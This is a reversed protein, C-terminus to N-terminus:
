CCIVSILKRNLNFCKENIFTRVVRTLERAAFMKSVRFALSSIEAIKTLLLLLLRNKTKLNMIQIAIGDSKKLHADQIRGTM